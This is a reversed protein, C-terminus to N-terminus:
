NPLHFQQQSASRGWTFLSVANACCSSWRPHVQCNYSLSPLVFSIRNVAIYCICYTWWSFCFLLVCAANCQNARSFPELRPTQKSGMFGEWLHPFHKSQTELIESMRTSLSTGEAGIYLCSCVFLLLVEVQPLHEIFRSSCHLEHLSVITCNTCHLLVHLVSQFAPHQSCWMCLWKSAAISYLLFMLWQLVSTSSDRFVEEPLVKNWHMGGM